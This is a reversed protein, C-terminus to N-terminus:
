QSPETLMQLYDDPCTWGYRTLIGRLSKKEHAKAIVAWLLHEEEVVPSRLEDARREAVAVAAGYTPTEKRPGSSGGCPLEQEIADRLNTLKNRDHGAKAQTAPGAAELLGYLLHVLQVKPCKRDLAARRARACVDRVIASERCHLPRIANPSRRVAGIDVGCAWQANDLQTRGMEVAEDFRPVCKEVFATAAATAELVLLNGRRVQGRLQEASIIKRPGPTAGKWCAVFAHKPTDAEPGTLVIVPHLGIYELCSAVLLALDLCTAEGKALVRHPLRIDQYRAPLGESNCLQPERYITKRAALVEYLAKLVVQEATGGGKALVEAFKAGLCEQAQLVLEEVAPANPFVFAALAKRFVPDYDWYTLPLITMSRSLEPQEHGNVCIRLRTTIPHLLRVLDDRPLDIDWSLEAWQVPRLSPVLAKMPEACYDLHLSVDFSDSETQDLNVCALPGILPSGCQRLVESRVRACPGFVLVSEHRICLWDEPLFTWITDGTHIPDGPRVPVADQSKIDRGEVFTGCKDALDELLWSCDEYRLRVRNRSPRLDADFVVGPRCVTQQPYPCGTPNATGVVTRTEIQGRHSPTVFLSINRTNTMTM